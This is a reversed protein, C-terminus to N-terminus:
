GNKVQGLFYDPDPVSSQQGLQMGCPLEFSVCEYLVIFARILITTNECASLMNERYMEGGVGGLFGKVM